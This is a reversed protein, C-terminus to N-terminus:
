FKLSLYLSFSIGKQVCFFTLLLSFARFNLVSIQRHRQYLKRHDCLRSSQTLYYERRRRWNRDVQFRLTHPCKSIPDKCIYNTLTLDYQLLVPGLGTVLPRILFCLCAPAHACVCVCVCVCVSEHSSVSLCPFCHTITSSAM